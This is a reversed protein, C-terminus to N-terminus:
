AQSKVNAIAREYVPRFAEKRANNWAAFAARSKALNDPHFFEQAPIVVEDALRASENIREQLPRFVRERQFEKNAREAAEQPSENKFYQALNRLHISVKQGRGGNQERDVVTPQCHVEWDGMYTSIVLELYGHRLVFYDWKGHGGDARVIEGGSDLFGKFQSNMYELTEEFKADSEAHRRKADRIGSGVIVSVMVTALLGVVVIIGILFSSFFEAM